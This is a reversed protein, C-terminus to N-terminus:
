SAFSADLLCGEDLLLLVEEVDAALEPLSFHFYYHNDPWNLMQLDGIVAVSGNSSCTLARRFLPPFGASRVLLMSRVHCVNVFFIMNQQM